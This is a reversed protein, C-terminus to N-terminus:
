RVKLLRFFKSEVPVSDCREVIFNYYSYKPLKYYDMMVKNFDLPSLEYAMTKIDYRDIIIYLDKNISLAKELRRFFEKEYNVYEYHDMWDIPFPNKSKMLPYIVPNSPLMVFKNHLKYDNYIKMFDKYYNYLDHNTKIKGFEPFINGMCSTLKSSELDRYNIRRQGYVSVSIIFILFVSYLIANKKNSLIGFWEPSLKNISYIIMLITAIALIGKTFVPSNAGLSISGSWSMILVTFIYFKQKKNLETILFTIISVMIFIWFIEFTANLFMTDEAILLNLSFAVTLIAYIVLLILTYKKHQLLINKVNYFRERLKIKDGKIFLYIFSILFIFHMGFLPTKIFSKIYRIVATEFFENRRTMQEIFPAVADHKILYGTYIWFPLAGIIIIFILNIIRKEKFYKIATILFLIIGLFVFSQRCTVAITILMLSIVVPIDKKIFSNNQEFIKDFFLFSLSAFFLADTTTWPFIGFNFNNLIFSFILLLFFTFYLNQNTKFQIQFSKFLLYTWIFSYTFIQFVVFWRASVELPLPSFFHISHLLGSTVPRLSIFDVHPVEGQLLRWSQSLVWGDDTPNFGENEIFRVIYYLAVIFLFAFLGILFFYTNKKNM